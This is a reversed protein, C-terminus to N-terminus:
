TSAGSDTRDALAELLARERRPLSHLRVSVAYTGNDRRELGVIKGALALRDAPEVLPLEFCVRSGPPLAAESAVTILDAHLAVLELVLISRTHPDASM